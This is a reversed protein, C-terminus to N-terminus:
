EKNVQASVKQQLELIRLKKKEMSSRGYEAFAEVIAPPDEQMGLDGIERSFDEQSSRMEQLVQEFAPNNALNNVEFPDAQVDYLEEAEMPRVLREQAAELKGQEDLINLLHYIPFVSKRHATSAENVSQDHIYNRIYKYRDMRVMRSKFHIEGIRDAAAWIMERGRPKSFMSIGQTRVDSQGVVELTTATVDILSFLAPNVGTLQYKSRIREDLSTIILPVQIGSDYLFNKGRPMPRGHDSFFFILTNEDLGYKRLDEMITGVQGDMVQISEYYDRFDARAIPHDPYYPPVKVRDPNVPNAEDAEFPRHTLRLNIRAFFPEEPNIEEWHSYDYSNNDYRFLWDTKGNGPFSRINATQYGKQKLRVHVPEVSAPLEPKLEEPYRMHYAGITNQYYGTVFATRSPSCAVGTAFVHNFRQGKEALEDIHPTQVVDHGFCGLDPSMDEIIVWLVNPQQALVMDQIGIGVVCWILIQFVKNFIM